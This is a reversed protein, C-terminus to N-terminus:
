DSGKVARSAETSKRKASLAAWDVPGKVFRTKLEQLTYADGWEFHRYLTDFRDGAGYGANTLTVRAHGSDLAIFEIVTVTRQFLEPDAFGAPAQINHLVLLRDPVYAVIQNKINGPDGPKANAEYSAEIYGGIRLEVKAIPVAWSAFGESTTFATFADHASAPVDISLQISRDGSPETFSTNSVDPFERWTREAAPVPASVFSILCSLTVLRTANLM